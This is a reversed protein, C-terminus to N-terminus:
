DPYLTAISLAQWPASSCRERCMGLVTWATTFLSCAHLDSPKDL